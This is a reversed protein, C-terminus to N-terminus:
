LRPLVLKTPDKTNPKRPILTRHHGQGVLTNAQWGPYSCHWSEIALKQWPSPLRILATNQSASTSLVSLSLGELGPVVIHVARLAPLFPAHEIRLLALGKSGRLGRPSM